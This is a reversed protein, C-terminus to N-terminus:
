VRVEERVPRLRAPIGYAAVDVYEASFLGDYGFLPGFRRNVVSVSVRFCGADEDYSERVRADGGIIAPVNV